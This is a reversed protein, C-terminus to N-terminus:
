EGDEAGEDEKEPEVFGGNLKEYEMMDNAIAEREQEISWDKQLMENKKLNYYYTEFSIFGKEKANNLNSFIQADLTKVSFDTNFEIDIEGNIGMWVAMLNLIFEYAQALSVAMSALQGQEGAKHITATEASEIGNPDNQLMKGALVSMVDVKKDMATKIAEPGQGKYEMYYAQGDTNLKLIRNGLGVPEDRYQEDDLGQVVPTPSGTVNLSNEYDASNIYHGINIDAIDNVFPYDLRNSIGEPTLFFCPIFDLSAGNIKPIIDDGYQSFDSKGEGKRYIRVVYQGDILNMTRYQIIEEPEFAGEEYEEVCEKIVVLTLTSKNNVLQYRWNIIDSANYYVAYPRINAKEKDAITKINNDENVPYDLVLVNRYNLLIDTNSEKIATIMSKGDLTFKDVVEQLKPPVKTKVNKRFLQEVLGRTIKKTYNYFIARKLYTEYESELHILGKDRDDATTYSKDTQYAQGSLKPLYVTGKKKIEEQGNYCDTCKEWVRKYKRYEECVYEVGKKEKKIEVTNGRIKEV